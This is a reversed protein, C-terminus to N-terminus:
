EQLTIISFVGGQPDNVVAFRGVKEINTPPVCVKGGLEAVKAATEDCSAVMFYPMWHAPTEGWEETMEIMGGIPQNKVLWETYTFGDMDSQQTNFGLSQCYFAESQQINRCALEVWCLTNDVQALKIGTHNIAQWIAFRSGEQDAFLAMRGADGVNHPGILLQGGAATIDNISSDVDDVAFYVTWHTPINEGMSASIQYMAAVDENDIQLMTYHGDPMSLDFAQWGFLAQYFGKAAAWDTSALEVWCPQGQFYQSVKM